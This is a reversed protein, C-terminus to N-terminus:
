IPSDPKKKFIPQLEIESSSKEELKSPNKEKLGLQKRLAIFQRTLQEPIKPKPPSITNILRQWASKLAGLVVKASSDKTPDPNLGEFDKIAAESEFKEKDLFKNLFEPTKREEGRFFARSELIDKIDIFSKRLGSFGQVYSPISNSCEELLTVM